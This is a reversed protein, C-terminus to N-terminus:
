CEEKPCGDHLDIKIEIPPNVFSNSKSASTKVHDADLLSQIQDQHKEITDLNSKSLHKGKAILVQTNDDKKTYIVIIFGVFGFVLGIVLCIVSCIKLLSNFCTQAWECISKEFLLFFGIMSSLLLFFSVFVTLIGCPKTCEWFKNFGNQLKYDIRLNSTVSISKNIQSSMSLKKMDNLNSKLNIKNTSVLSNARDKQASDALNSHSSFLYPINSASLTLKRNQKLDNAQLGMLNIDLSSKTLPKTDPKKITNLHTKSLSLGTINQHSKKYHHHQFSPPPPPYEQHTHSVESNPRHFNYGYNFINPTFLGTQVTSHMNKKQKKVFM